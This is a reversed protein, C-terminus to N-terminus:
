RRKFFSFLGRRSKTQQEQDKKKFIGKEINEVKDNLVQITRTDDKGVTYQIDYINQCVSELLEKSIDTFIKMILNCVLDMKLSGTLVHGIIMSIKPSNEAIFLVTFKCINVFFNKSTLDFEKSIKFMYLEELDAFCKENEEKKKREIQQLFYNKSDRTPVRPRTSESISQQEIISEIRRLRSALGENKVDTM